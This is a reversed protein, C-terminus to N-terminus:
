KIRAVAYDCNAKSDSFRTRNTINFTFFKNLTELRLAKRLGEVSLVRVPQTTKKNGSRDAPPEVTYIGQSKLDRFATRLNKNVVSTCTTGDKRKATCVGYDASVGLKVMQKASNVSLSFERGGNDKRLSCNFLGFVTGAKETENKKYADGFLFLSVNNENLSGIKWIGYAQGISSTKPQGKETIVGMTAWCGSLKDGMLLNRIRLGSFKEIDNTNSNNSGKPKTNKAIPKPNYDICDQVVSRFDSLDSHGRRKPSEDDTLYGACVNGRMLSLFLGVPAASPSGPPTELVRDDLSLLLELDEQDNEM